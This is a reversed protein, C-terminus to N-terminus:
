SDYKMIDEADRNRTDDVDTNRANSLLFIRESSMSSIATHPKVSFTPVREREAARDFNSRPTRSKTAM